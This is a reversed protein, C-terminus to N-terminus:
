RGGRKRVAGKLMEGVGMQTWAFWALMAAGGAKLWFGYDTCAGSQICAYKEREAAVDAATKVATTVALLLGGVILVPWLWPHSASASSIIGGMAQTQPASGALAIRALSVAAQPNDALSPTPLQAGPMVETLLAHLRDALDQEVGPDRAAAIMKKAIGPPVKARATGAIVRDNIDRYKLWGRISSKMKELEVSAKKVANTTIGQQAM